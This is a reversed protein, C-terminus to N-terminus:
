KMGTTRIYASVPRWGSVTRKGNTLPYAESLQPKAITKMEADAQSWGHARNGLRGFLLLWGANRNEMISASLRALTRPQTRLPVWIDFPTSLVTGRFGKGSVGVIIFPNGNLEIRAGIATSTGGFRRQWLGYGIVAADDDPALLRGAAPQVGLVDFYNDTVLDGIVREPAGNQSFNLASAGHAALGLFSQSRDRYDRYDPYGMVDFTQGNQVRYLSVLRGPDSIAPLPRLLIASVVSFVATNAGIGLALILLAIATFGPAKKM